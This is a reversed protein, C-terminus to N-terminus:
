IGVLGSITTWLKVVYLHIVLSLNKWLATKMLVLWYKINFASKMTMKVNELYLKDSIHLCKNFINPLMIWDSKRFAPIQQYHPRNLRFTQNTSHGSHSRLHFEAELLVMLRAQQKTDVRKFRRLFDEWGFSNSRLPPQWWFCRRQQPQITHCRALHYVKEQVM